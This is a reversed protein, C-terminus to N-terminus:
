RINKKMFNKNNDLIIDRIGGISERVIRVQKQNIDAIIKSNNKLKKKFLTAILAYYTGFILFAISSIKPDIFM